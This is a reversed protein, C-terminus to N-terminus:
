KDSDPNPKSALMEPTRENYAKAFEEDTFDDEGYNPFDFFQWGEEGHAMSFHPGVFPCNNLYYTQVFPDDEWERAIFQQGKTGRIFWPQQGHSGFQCEIIKRIHLIAALSDEKHASYTELNFHISRHRLLKLLRFEEAVDPLLVNWALLADIPVDWNDFSKKRYVKQYEPTSSYFDRLDIILHNLIREGLACAGVLAPYYAGVIYAQRVQNFFHNHYSLTSFPKTKLATFNEVKADIGLEGYEKQLQERIRAKNGYWVEKTSKEWDEGIETTLVLARSDFDMGWSLHRRRGRDKLKDKEANLRKGIAVLSKSIEQM